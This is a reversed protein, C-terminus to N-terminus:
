KEICDNLIKIKTNKDNQEIFRDIHSHKNNLYLHLFDLDILKMKFLFNNSKNKLKNSKNKM